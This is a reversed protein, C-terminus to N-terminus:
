FRKPTYHRGFGDYCPPSCDNSNYIDIYHIYDNCTPGKLDLTEIEEWNSKLVEKSTNSFHDKLWQLLPTEM